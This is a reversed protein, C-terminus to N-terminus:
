ITVQKGARKLLELQTRLAGATTVDLQLGEARFLVGKLWPAEALQALQALQTQLDELTTERPGLQPPFSLLKRRTRRAPFSGSLEVVVVEPREGPLAALANQIVAGANHILSPALQPSIKM